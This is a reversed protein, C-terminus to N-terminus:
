CLLLFLLTSFFSFLLHRCIRNEFIGPELVEHTSLHLWPCWWSIKRWAGTLFLCQFENMSFYFHSLCLWSISQYFSFLFLIVLYHLSISSAWPYKPDLSHPLASIIHTFGANLVWSSFCVLCVVLVPVSDYTHLDNPPNDALLPFPSFSSFTCPILLM